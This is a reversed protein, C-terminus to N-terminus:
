LAARHRPIEGQGTPWYGGCCGKPLPYTTLEIRVEPVLFDLLILCQELVAYSGM